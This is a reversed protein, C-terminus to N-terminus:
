YWMCCWVLCIPNNMLACTSSSPQQQQQAWRDMNFIVLQRGSTAVIVHSNTATLSYAKGPLSM